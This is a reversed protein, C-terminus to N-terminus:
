PSAIERVHSVHISRPCTHLPLLVKTLDATTKPLAAGRLTGAKDYTETPGSQNNWKERERATGGLNIQRYLQDRDRLHAEM